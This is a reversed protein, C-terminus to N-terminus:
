TQASARPITPILLTDFSFLSDDGSTPTTNGSSVGRAQRYSAVVGVAVSECSGVRAAPWGRGRDGGHSMETFLVLLHDRRSPGGCGVLLHTSCDFRETTGVEDCEEGCGM